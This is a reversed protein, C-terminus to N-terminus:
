ELLTCPVGRSILFEAGDTDHVAGYVVRAVRAGAMLRACDLCPSWNCYVTAGAAGGGNRALKLLLHEEAHLVTPKTVLRGSPDLFECTNDEGPLTGNYSFDLISEGKVAVAGVKRKTAYSEAAAANAISMFFRDPDRM